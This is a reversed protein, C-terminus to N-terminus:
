FQINHGLSKERHVGLVKNALEEMLWPDYDESYTNDPLIISFVMHSGLYNGTHEDTFFIEAVHKKGHPLIAAYMSMGYNSIDKAGDDQESENKNEAKFKDSKQLDSLIQKELGPMSFMPWHMLLFMAKIESGFRPKIGRESDFELLGIQEPMSCIADTINEIIIERQSVNEMNTENM